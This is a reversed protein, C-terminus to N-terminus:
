INEIIQHSVEPDMGEPVQLGGDVVDVANHVRGNSDVNNNIANNDENNNDNNNEEETDFIDDM